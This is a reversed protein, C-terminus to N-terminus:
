GAAALREARSRGHQAGAEPRAYRRPSWSAARAWRDRRATRGTSAAREAGPLAPRCRPRARRRGARGAGAARAADSPRARCRATREELALVAARLAMYLASRLARGACRARVAGPGYPAISVRLACGRATRAARGRVGCSLFDLSPRWVVRGIVSSGRPRTALGTARWEGAAVAADAICEGPEVAYGNGVIADRLTPARVSRRARGVSDRTRSQAGRRGCAPRRRREARRHRVGRRARRASGVRAKSACAEGLRASPDVGDARTGRFVAHRRAVVDYSARRYESPTGIDGWYAGRARIRLVARRRRHLAPFVQKGFDYFTAAPIQEFIEPSFVYIGTNVLKSRETGKRRNRKFVSSRAADDLVVVGYQDM